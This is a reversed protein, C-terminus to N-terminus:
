RTVGVIRGTGPGRSHHVRAVRQPADRPAVRRVTVPAVGDRVDAPQVVEVAVRQGDTLGEPQWASTTHDVCHAAKPSQSAFDQAEAYRRGWCTTTVATYTAWLHRRSGM